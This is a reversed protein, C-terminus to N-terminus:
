RAYRREVLASIGNRYQGPEQVSGIRLAGAMAQVEQGARDRARDAGSLWAEPSEEDHRCDVRVARCSPAVCPLRHRPPITAAMWAGYHQSVHKRQGLTAAPIDSVFM